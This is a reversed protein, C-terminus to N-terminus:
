CGFQARKRTLGGTRWVPRAQADPRRVESNPHPPVRPQFPGFFIPVCQYSSRVHALPCWRPVVWLSRSRYPIALLLGSWSPIIRSSRPRDPPVQFLTSCRLVSLSLRTCDPFPLFAPSAESYDPAVWLLRSRGPLAQFMVFLRSYGLFIWSLLSLEVVVQFLWCSKSLDLLCLFIPFSLSPRPCGPM